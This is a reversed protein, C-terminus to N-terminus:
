GGSEITCEEQKMKNKLFWIVIDIEKNESNLGATSLM